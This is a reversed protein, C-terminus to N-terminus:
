PNLCFFLDTQKFSVNPKFVERKIVGMKLNSDNYYTIAVYKNETRKKILDICFEYSIDSFHKFFIMMLNITSFHFANRFNKSVKFQVDYPM